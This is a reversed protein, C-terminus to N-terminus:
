AINREFPSLEVSEVNALATLYVKQQDILFRDCLESYNESIKGNETKRIITKQQTEYNLM